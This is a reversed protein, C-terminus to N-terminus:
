CSRLLRIMLRLLLLALLLGPLPSPMVVPVTGRGLATVRSPLAVVEPPIMGWPWLLLDRSFVTPFVLVAFCTLILPSVVAGGLRAPVM